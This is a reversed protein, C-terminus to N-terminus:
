IFVFSNETLHIESGCEYSIFKYQHLQFVNLNMVNSLLRFTYAQTWNHFFLFTKDRVIINLKKKYDM